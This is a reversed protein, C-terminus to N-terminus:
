FKLKNNITLTITAHDRKYFLCAETKEKNVILGSDRLWKTIMELQREMNPILEEVAENSMIVQKDNAFPFFPTVDFLILFSYQNYPLIGDM